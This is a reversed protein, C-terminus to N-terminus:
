LVGIEPMKDALEQTHRAQERNLLEIAALLNNAKDRQQTAKAAAADGAINGARTIIEYAEQSGRLAVSPLEPQRAMDGELSQELSKDRAKFFTGDDLVGARRLERLGNLDEALREVPSMVDQKLKDARSQLEKRHAAADKAQEAAKKRQLELNSLQKEQVQLQKELQITRNIEAASAGKQTMERRINALDSRLKFQDELSQGIQRETAIRKRNAAVERNLETITDRIGATEKKRYMEVLRAAQEHSANLRRYSRYKSDLDQLVSQQGGGSARLQKASAAFDFEGPKEKMDTVGLLKQRERLKELQKDLEANEDALAKMQGGVKFASGGDLADQMRREVRDNFAGFNNRTFEGLAGFTEGALMSELKYIPAFVKGVEERFMQYQSTTRAIQVSTSDAMKELMGNYRGGESTASTFADAVMDVSIAGNAMDKRLDSMSRGTTRSIEQLPNFGANIMQNLEQGMLKGAGGVQGFALALSNLRGADGRTIAAMQKLKPLVEDNAIGFQLMTGAADTMVSANAGAAISLRRLSGVFRDAKKESGVFVEFAAQTRELPAYFESTSERLKSHAALLAGAAALPGAVRGAASAIGGFKTGGLAGGAFSAAAGLGGIGPGGGSAIDRSGQSAEFHGMQSMARKASAGGLIDLRKQEANSLKRTRQEAVLYEKNLEAQLKAQHKLMQPFRSTMSRLNELGTAYRETPTASDAMVKRFTALQKRSSMVGSSLERADFKVKYALQGISTM